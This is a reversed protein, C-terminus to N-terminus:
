HLLQQRSCFNSKEFPFFVIFILTMEQCNFSQTSMCDHVCVCLPQPLEKSYVWMEGTVATWQHGKHKDALSFTCDMVVCVWRIYCPMSPVFLYFLNFLSFFYDFSLKVGQHVAAESKKFIKFFFHQLLFFLFVLTSIISFLKEDPFTSELQICM